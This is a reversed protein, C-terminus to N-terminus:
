RTFLRCVFLHAFLFLRIEAHLYKLRKALIQSLEAMSSISIADSHSAQGACAHMFLLIVFDGSNYVNTM